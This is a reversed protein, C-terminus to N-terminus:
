TESKEHKRDIVLNAIIFRTDEHYLVCSACNCVQMTLAISVIRPADCFQNQHIHRKKNYMPLYGMLNKGFYSYRLFFSLLFFGRTNLNLAEKKALFSRDFHRM